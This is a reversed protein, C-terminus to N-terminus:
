NRWWKLRKADHDRFLHIRDCEGGSLVLGKCVRSRRFGEAPDFDYDLSELELAAPEECIADQYGASVQFESIDPKQDAARVFGVYVKGPSHGLCVQDSRGDCAIDGALNKSDWHVDPRLKTLTRLATQALKASSPKQYASVRDCLAVIGVLGACLEIVKRRSNGM